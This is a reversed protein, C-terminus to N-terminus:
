AAKESEGAAKKKMTAYDEEDVRTVVAVAKNKGSVLALEQGEFFNGLLMISYGETISEMPGKSIKIKM